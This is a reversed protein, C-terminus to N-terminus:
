YINYVLGRADDDFLDPLRKRRRQPYKKFTRQLEELKLVNKNLQDQLSFFNVNLFEQRRMNQVM